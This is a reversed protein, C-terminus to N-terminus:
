VNRYVSGATTHGALSRGYWGANALRHMKAWGALKVPPSDHPILSASMRHKRRAPRLRGCPTGGRAVHRVAEQWM